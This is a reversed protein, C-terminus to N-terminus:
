ERRLGGTYNTELTDLSERTSEEENELPLLFCFVPVFVTDSKSVHTVARKRIKNKKEVFVTDTEKVYVTDPTTRLESDFRGNFYPAIDSSPLTYQPYVSQAYLTANGPFLNPSNKNQMGIALAGALAFLACCIVTTFQKM